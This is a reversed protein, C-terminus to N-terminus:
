HSGLAPLRPGRRGGRSHPARTRAPSRSSLRAGGARLRRGSRAPHRRRKRGIGPLAAGTMWPVENRSTASIVAAAVEQARGAEGAALALRVLDPGIVPYELALGSRAYWDWCDSLTELADTLEGDAELLLVRAWMSWDDRYGASADSWGPAAAERADPLDNRHLNILARLSRGLIPIFSHGAEGRLMRVLGAGTEIEAVADDWHGALFRELARVAHYVPVPWGIGLEESIRMGSEITSRAEDFRDFEVLVYGRPIYVLFRHGLRCPSQDALLVADDAIQFAGSLHGRRLSSMALTAMAISTAVHNRAEVATPRAHAAAAAAGDLDGLVLRAFSAWAEAEAREAGTLLASQSARELECLGDRGRGDAV